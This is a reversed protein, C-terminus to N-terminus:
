LFSFLFYHEIAAGARGGAGGAVARLAGGGEGGEGGECRGGDGARVSVGRAGCGGGM